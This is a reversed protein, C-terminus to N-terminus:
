TINGVPRSSRSNALSALLSWFGTAEIEGASPNYCAHVMVGLRGTKGWGEKRKEREKKIHIRLILSVNEHKYVRQSNYHREPRTQKKTIQKKKRVAKM